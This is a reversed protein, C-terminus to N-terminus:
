RRTAMTVAIGGALLVFPLAFWGALALYPVGVVCAVLSYAASVVSLGCQTRPPGERNLRVVLAACVAAWLAARPEGFTLHEWLDVAYTYWGEGLLVERLEGFGQAYEPLRAGPATVANVGALDDRFLETVLLVAFGLAHAIGTAWGVTTRLPNTGNEATLRPATSTRRATSSSPRDTRTPSDREHPPATSAPDGRTAERSADKEATRGPKAGSM